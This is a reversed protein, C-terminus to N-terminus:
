PGEEVPHLRCGFIEVGPKAAIMMIAFVTLLTEEVPTVRSRAAGILSELMQQDQNASACAMQAATRLLEASDLLRREDVVLRFM